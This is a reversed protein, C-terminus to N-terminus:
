KYVSIAVFYCTISYFFIYVFGMGNLMFYGPLLDRYELHDIATGSLGNGSDFWYLSSTLKEILISFLIPDHM